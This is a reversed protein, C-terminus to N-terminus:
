LVYALVCLCGRVCVLVSVPGTPHDIRDMCAVCGLCPTAHLCNAEGQITFVHWSNWAVKGEDTCCVMRCLSAYNQVAKGLVCFCVRMCMCVRQVCGYCWCVWAHMGTRTCWMIYHVYTCACVHVCLPYKYLLCSYLIIILEYATCYICLYAHILYTCALHM